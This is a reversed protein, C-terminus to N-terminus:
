SSKWQRKWIKMTRQKSSSAMQRGCVCLGAYTMLVEDNYLQISIISLIMILLLPWVKLVWGWGHPSEPGAQIDPLDQLITKDAVSMGSQRQM